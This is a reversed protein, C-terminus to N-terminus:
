LNRPRVETRSRIAEGKRQVTLDIIVMNGAPNVSLESTGPALVDRIIIKGSGYTFTGGMGGTLQAKKIDYLGQNFSPPYSDKENYFYYIDYSAEDQTFRIEDPHLSDSVIRAERIDRVMEEIARDIVIGIGSRAEHSSWSKSVAIFVYIAVSMLIALLLLTIMLEILTFGKKKIEM